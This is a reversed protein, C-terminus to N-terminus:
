KKHLIKVRTIIKIQPYMIKIKNNFNLIDNINFYENSIENVRINNDFIELIHHYTNNSNNYTLRWEFRFYNISSAEPM